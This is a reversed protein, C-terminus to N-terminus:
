PQRFIALIRLVNPHDFSHWETFEGLSTMDQLVIKGGFVETVAQVKGHEDEIMFTKKLAITNGFLGRGIKEVFEYHDNSLSKIAKGLVAERYSMKLVSFKKLKNM